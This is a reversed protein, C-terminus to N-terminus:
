LVLFVDHHEVGTEGDVYGDGVVSFGHAEYFAVAADRARAWVAEAHNQRCHDLGALLLQSGIGTGRVSPDTAMGRLQYAALSPRLYYSRVMWTSIAVVNGNVRWGLHVTDIDDDGEFTVVDSTTGDRLIAKRLAFTDATRLQELM